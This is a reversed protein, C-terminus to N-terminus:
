KSFFNFICLVAMLVFLIDHILIVNKMDDIEHTLTSLGILLFEISADKGKKDKIEVNM